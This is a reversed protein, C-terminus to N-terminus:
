RGRITAPAYTIPSHTMALQVYMEATRIGIAKPNLVPAEVEAELDKPDVIYPIIAGGLPVICEAGTEKLLGRMVEVARNFIKPRQTAVDDGGPVSYLDLSRIDTVLQLVGYSEMLRRARVVNAHFPVTVGIRDALNAAAFMTTRCLGLVPIRVAHRSAEVAPDFNNSQIVADYGNQEAWVTKRILSPTTLAKGLPSSGEGQARDYDGDPYCLDIQTGPSAYGRLLSEVREHYEDEKPNKASQNLFMIRM